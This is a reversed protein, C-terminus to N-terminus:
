IFELLFLIIIFMIISMFVFIIYKIFKKMILKQNNLYKQKLNNLYEDQTIKEYFNSLEKRQSFSSIGYIYDEIIKIEEIMNKSYLYELMESYSHKLMRRIPTIFIIISVVFYIFMLMSLFNLDM